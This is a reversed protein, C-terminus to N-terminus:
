AALRLWGDHVLWIGLGCLLLGTARLAWLYARGELFRRSRSLLFAMAVKSGCLLCYFGALFAAAGALGSQAARLTAPAGVAGWFLYVHPNLLNIAVAKRLSRPSGAPQGAAPPRARLSEVGLWVLYLGGAFSIVALVPGAADLRSYLLLSLAVIPADTLVPALATVIGQRLGYRLTQAVLLAMLPGPSVGAALGFSAGSIAFPLM